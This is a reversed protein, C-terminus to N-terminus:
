SNIGFAESKDHVENKNENLVGWDISLLLKSLVCEITLTSFNIGLCRRRGSGFPTFEFNRNSNLFREPWFEELKEWYVPDRSMMWVNIFVQEYGELETVNMAEKPVLTPIPPHMRLRERIVEKIYDM